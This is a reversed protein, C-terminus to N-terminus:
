HFVWKRIGMGQQQRNNRPGFSLTNIRTEICFPRCGRPGSDACLFFPEAVRNLVTITVCSLLSFPNLKTDMYRRVTYESMYFKAFYM